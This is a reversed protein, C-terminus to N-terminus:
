LQFKFGHENKKRSCVARGGQGGGRDPIQKKVFHVFKRAGGFFLRIRNGQGYLAGLGVGCVALDEHGGGGRQFGAVDPFGLLLRFRFLMVKHWAGM